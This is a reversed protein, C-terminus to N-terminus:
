AVAAAGQAPAYRARLFAEQTPLRAVRAAIGADLDALAQRLQEPPLTRAIRHWSAPEIGQGFLVQGWSDIRFLDDQDQFAAASERFLELRAALSDPVTMAARDPWFTGDSRQNLYYHLIVFDRIHEWEARSQANFREALASCDRAFPFSRIFRTVAIMVLHIATSELPEIFGGALGLALCNRNWAKRRMGTTFRLLRPEFLPAGELDATFQARAEEESMHASAYVFGNGVRQQLPIRWRWGGRHAIARTYPVPPGVPESQVVLARDTSLWHSWDEFGTELAGEILLARFGTCDLFFDGEIREGSALKLAAIDGSELEVEAIRGEVRRVGAAEALGRLFRAYATADFHYAYALGADPDTSFRNEAAARLELSYDGYPRDLGQRRAELWFHQFDAIFVSRGVSGFSHFYRDGIHQWNEFSIGLKFAAGTARVFADEDIGAFTHFTRVTPITSEGVGVTGIEESEVLTVDVLAGLQRAIATAAVWGATGGGAIVVRRPRTDDDSM